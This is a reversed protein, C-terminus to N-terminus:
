RQVISYEMNMNSSSCVNLLSNYHRALLSESYGQITPHGLDYKLQDYIGAYGM